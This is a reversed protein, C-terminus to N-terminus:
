VTRIERDLMAERSAPRRRELRRHLDYLLWYRRSTLWRDQIAQEVALRVDAIRGLPPLRDRAARIGAAFRDDDTVLMAGSGAPLPKLLNNSYIAAIGRIPMGPVPFTQARDELLP